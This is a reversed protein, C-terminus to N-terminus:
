GATYIKNEEEDEAGRRQLQCGSDLLLGVEGAKGAM